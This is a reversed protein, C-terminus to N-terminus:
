QLLLMKRSKVFKNDVFMEYLYIGSSVPSGASNCGDWMVQYNGSSQKKNVLMKIEEGILNYIRIIINSPKKLQYKITTQSNFPNPYNQDLVYGESSITNDKFNPINTPSYTADIIILKKNNPNENSIYTISWEPPSPPPVLSQGLSAKIRYNPNQERFESGGQLEALFMASDSDIWSKSIWGIGTLINYSISDFSASDLDAHCYYYKPSDISTYCYIWCNSTGDVDVSDSKVFLLKTNNDIIKVLSDIKNKYYSAKINELVPSSVNISNAYSSKGPVVTHIRGNSMFEEWFLRIDTGTTPNVDHCVYYYDIYTAGHGILTVSHYGSGGGWLHYKLTYVMPRYANIESQVFSYDAEPTHWGRDVSQFNYNRNWTPDNCLIRIGNDIMYIYTGIGCGLFNMTETLEDRCLHLYGYGDPDIKGKTWKTGGEVLLPYGRHDHYGLINGAAHEACMSCYSQYDPVGSLKTEYPAITTKKLSKTTNQIDLVNSEKNKLRDKLDFDQHTPNTECVELLKMNIYVNERSNTFEAFYEFLGNFLFRSFQINKKNLKESALDFGDIMTVYNLPLGDYMEVPKCVGSIDSVVVTGFNVEELMQKWGKDIIEYAEEVKKWDNAKQSIELIREGEIRLNRGQEIQLNIEQESPFDGKKKYIAFMYATPENELNTFTVGNNIQVHNGWIVKANQLACTKAEDTPLLEINSFTVNTAFFTIILVTALKFIILKKM